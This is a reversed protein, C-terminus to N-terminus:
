TAGTVCRVICATMADRQAQDLKNGPQIGAALPAADGALLTRLAERVAPVSEVPVADLQGDTVAIVLATEEALTLPRQPPQTLVARVRRGREIILRTAEDLDSGFRTFTELECFQAYELRLPEARDVIPKAQAKSGVRSVSIGINIAPRIGQNFLKGDLVIQGDTISIINTPIYSSLNGAQTEAIPLATLTGGGREPSLRAARELLRSHAYFIDGPYAERGAPRRLLLAVQRHVHAHRTLDDYIILAHGGADRIAEAMTCAAYPAIWQLGAASDAGAAVVLVRDWAARARLQEVVRRITATKQGIAVYICVVDSHRQSIIADLAITTKGTARDGIILERQGRGLPLLADIALTGTTLPESVPSRDLIGPAPREIPSLTTDGVIAGLGDIPQGLPDVVRGCLSRGTPVRIVGGTRTVPSGAAIGDQPGLLVCGVRDEDLDVALGVVGTSFRVPEDLCVHPLGHVVVIGDAVSLVEGREASDAAPAFGDVTAKADTAWATVSDALTGM